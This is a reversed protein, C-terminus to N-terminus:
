AGRGHASASLSPAHGRLMMGTLLIRPGFSRRTVAALVAKDVPPPWFWDRWYRWTLWRPPNYALALALMSLGPGASAFFHLWFIRM